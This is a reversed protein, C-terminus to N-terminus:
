EFDFNLKAQTKRAVGRTSWGFDTFIALTPPYYIEEKIKSNSAKITYPRFGFPYTIEFDPKTLTLVISNLIM